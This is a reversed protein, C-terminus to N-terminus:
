KTEETVNFTLKAGILERWITSLVSDPNFHKGCVLCTYKAIGSDTRGYQPIRAIKHNCSM